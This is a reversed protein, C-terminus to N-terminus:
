SGTGPFIVRSYKDVDSPSIGLLKNTNSKPKKFFSRDPIPRILAGGIAVSRKDKPQAAPAEKVISKRPQTSAASIKRQPASQQQQQQQLHQQHQQQANSQTSISTTDHGIHTPTSTPGQCPCPRKTGPSRDYYPISTRYGMNSQYYGPYGKKHPQTRTSAYSCRIPSIAVGVPAPPIPPPYDIEPFSCNPAHFCESSAGSIQQQTMIPQTEEMSVLQPPPPLPPPQQQAVLTAAAATLKKYNEEQAKLLAEARSKRMAIRKGLYGVAAYELLSHLPM